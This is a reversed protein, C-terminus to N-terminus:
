EYARRTKTQAELLDPITKTQLSNVAEISLIRSQYADFLRVYFENLARNRELV